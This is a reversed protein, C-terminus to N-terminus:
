EGKRKEFLGVQERTEPKHRDMVAILRRCVLCMEDEGALLPVRCGCSCTCHKM